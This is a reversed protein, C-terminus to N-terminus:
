RKGSAISKEKCCAFIKREADIGKGGGREMAQYDSDPPARGGKKKSFPCCDVSGRWPHNTRDAERVFRGTTKTKGVVASKEAKIFGVGMVGKSGLHGGNISSERPGPRKGVEKLLKKGTKQIIMKILKKGEDKESLKLLHGVTEM